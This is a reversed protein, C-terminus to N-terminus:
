DSLFDTGLRRARDFLAQKARPVHVIAPNLLCDHQRHFGQFRFPEGEPLRDRFVGNSDTAWFDQTATLTHSEPDDCLVQMAYALLPEDVWFVGRRRSHRWFSNALAYVTPIAAKRVIFMGANLGYVSAHRVGAERMLGVFTEAPYEWWVAGPHARALDAELSAHLPADRLLRGPDGPHRVFWTDADLYVFYDYDLRAVEDRLFVLKFLWGWNDFRGAPHTIAGPVERDTWVHFDEGVGVARASALLTRVLDTYRGTGITWYCFRPKAIM